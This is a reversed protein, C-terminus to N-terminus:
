NDKNIEFKVKLIDMIFQLWTEFIAQFVEKLFENQRFKFLAFFESHDLFIRAYRM